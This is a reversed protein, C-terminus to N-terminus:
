VWIKNRKRGYLWIWSVEPGKALYAVDELINGTLAL